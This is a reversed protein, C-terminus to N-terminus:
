KSTNSTRTRKVQVTDESVTKGKVKILKEYKLRPVGKLEPFQKESLQFM